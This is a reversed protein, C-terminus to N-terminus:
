RGGEGRKNDTLKYIYQTPKRCATILSNIHHKLRGKDEYIHRQKDAFLLENLSINLQAGDEQEIETLNGNEFQAEKIIGDVHVNFLLPDYLNNNNNNCM